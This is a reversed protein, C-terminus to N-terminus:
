SDKYTGGNMTCCHLTFHLKFFCPHFTYVNQVIVHIFTSYLMNGCNYAFFLFLWVKTM